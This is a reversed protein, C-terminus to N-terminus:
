GIDHKLNPFASFSNNEDSTHVIISVFRKGHIVAIKVLLLLM